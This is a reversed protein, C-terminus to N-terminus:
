QAEIGELWNRIRAIVQVAALVLFILAMWAKLRVRDSPIFLPAAAQLCRGQLKAIGNQNYPMQANEFDM